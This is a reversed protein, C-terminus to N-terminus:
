PLSFGAELCETKITQMLRQLLSPQNTVIGDVREALMKKMSDEDDVTWAYVKKGRGHSIRVLKEDILPYYVGIVGARKMRLLNTRAGTSPDRMVIYGVVSLIDAALGKEYSPPGVKADLIVQRVSKSILTLADEVTPVKQNHFEQPFQFGADLGKIENMNFYGVKATSNGSMRQLDRDHLAFLVGDLSRSVDVEICDVQSLLAARYADMTNPVSKSSDGGHACVLPPDDLWGCKQLQMQHFRRLRFHFFIPPIFAIFGIILLLRLFRKSSFRLFRKWLRSHLSRQPQKKRQKPIAMGKRKGRWNESLSLEWEKYSIFLARTIACALM